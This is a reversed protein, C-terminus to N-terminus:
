NARFQRQSKRGDFDSIIVALSAAREALEAPHLERQRELGGSSATALLSFVNDSIELTALL